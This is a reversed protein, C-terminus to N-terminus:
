LYPLMGPHEQENTLPSKYMSYLLMTQNCSQTIAGGLM